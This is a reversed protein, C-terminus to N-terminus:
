RSIIMNGSPSTNIIVSDVVECLNNDIVTIFIGENSDASYETENIRVYLKNDISITYPVSFGSNPNQVTRTAGEYMLTGTDYYLVKGSYVDIFSQQSGKLFDSLGFNKLILETESSPNNNLPKNACILLTMNENDAFSLWEAADMSHRMKEEDEFAKQYQKATKEINEKLLQIHTLYSNEYLEQWSAYQAENRHDALNFSEVMYKALFSTYKEAGFVNVHNSNYFDTLSNLGMQHWIEIKNADLFPVNYEDAIHIYTNIQEAQKSSLIYPSATILIPLKNLLCYELLDRFCSEAEKSIGTTATTDPPYFNPYVSIQSTMVNAMYGKYDPLISEDNIVNNWLEWNSEISLINKNNHYYILDIYSTISDKLSISNVHCYYSIAATREISIDWSDTTVRYGGLDVGKESLSEWVPSLFTRIDVVFVKPSQTKQIEKIASLYTAAPMNSMSYNYSTIGYQQWALMPNWYVFVCSAGIYVMDLSDAIENKIGLIRLRDASANRFLYTLHVFIQCVIALFLCFSIFRKITKKKLLKVM